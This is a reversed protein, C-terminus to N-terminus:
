LPQHLNAVNYVLTQSLLRVYIKRFKVKENMGM